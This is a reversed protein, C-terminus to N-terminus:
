ISTYCCYLLTMFTMCNTSLLKIYAKDLLRINGTQYIWLLPQGTGISNVGTCTVKGYDDNDLDWLTFTSMVLELGIIVGAVPYETEVGSDRSHTWIFTVDDYPLAAM